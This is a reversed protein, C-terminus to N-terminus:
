FCVHDFSQPRKMGDECKPLVCPRVVNPMAHWRARQYQVHDYSMSRQMVDHSKSMVCSRVIALTAHWCRGQAACLTLIHRTHCAMMVMLILVHDSSTPRPMGDDCNSQMSLTRHCGVHSAKMERPCCVYDSSTSRPM